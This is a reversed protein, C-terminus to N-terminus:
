LGLMSGASSVVEERPKWRVRSEVQELSWVEQRQEEKGGGLKLNSTAEELFDEVIGHFCGLAM